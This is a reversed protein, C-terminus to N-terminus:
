CGLCLACRLAASSVGEIVVIMSTSDDRKKRARTSSAGCVFEGQFLRSERAIHTEASACRPLVLSILATLPAGALALHPLCLCLLDRVGRRACAGFFSQPFVTQDFLSSRQPVLITAGDNEARKFLKPHKKVLANYFPNELVDLEDDSEQLMCLVYLRLTLAGRWM